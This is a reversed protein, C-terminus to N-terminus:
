YNIEIWREREELETGDQARKNRKYYSRKKM